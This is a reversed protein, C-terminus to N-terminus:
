AAAPAAQRAAARRGALHKLGYAVIGGAVLVIIGVLPRYWFWAIAIVLPALVATAMLSVLSAGAGLINGILPVVDAVVVLPNLILAFGIFMAVVGVLRIIWTIVTNEREAAKFMDAASMSGPRVLLLTDGARTQYDGFDSGAQRGVISVTGAPAFRYSIRMDGIRPQSPDAGLYFRGDNAEVPGNVRGRLAEAMAADVRLEQRAPLMAVVREGPRFAGLTVEGGAFTADNYRKAPNVHGETVKFRSSDIPADSWKRVYTYTTVTEESGGVNKKTESHEEQVWQYMEVTRVLRLGDASVGFEADKPQIGAKMDGTVHVLKGENGPDVSTPPIDVVLGAGEALSKATQVARGENWFLGICSLIILVVGFLVGKISDGIRSGWGKTTTETYTDTM